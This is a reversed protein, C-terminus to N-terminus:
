ITVKCVIHNPRTIYLNSLITQSNPPYIYSDFTVVFVQELTDKMTQVGQQNINNHTLIIQQTLRKNYCLGESISTAGIPGIEANISIDLSVLSNNVKIAAGLQQAAQTGINNFALSLNTLSKNDALAEAIPIAGKDGIDNGCLDLFALSNSHQLAVALSKSGKYGFENRSLDISNLTQSAQIGESIYKMSDSKLSTDCFNLSQLTPHNKIVDGIIKANKESIENRSFDINLLCTNKGISDAIVDIGKTGFRNKSLNLIHLTKTTQIATSLAKSGKLGICNQSLDLHTLTKNTGLAKSIEEAGENGISNFSLNLHTITTNNVLCTGICTAAKNGIGNQSLELTTILKNDILIMKVFSTVDFLTPTLVKFQLTHLNPFKNHAINSFFNTIKKDPPLHYCYNTIRDVSLRHWQRCVSAINTYVQSIPEDKHAKGLIISIISDTLEQIYPSRTGPALLIDPIEYVLPQQQSQQQPSNGSQQLQGINGHSSTTTSTTIPTNNSLPSSSSHIINSMHQQQQQYGLQQLISPDQPEMKATSDKDHHLINEHKLLVSKDTLDSLDALTNAGGNHHASYSAAQDSISDDKKINIHDPQGNPNQDQGQQMYYYPHQEVNNMQQHYNQM